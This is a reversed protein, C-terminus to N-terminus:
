VDMMGDGIVLSWMESRNRQWKITREPQGIEIGFFERQPWEMESFKFM